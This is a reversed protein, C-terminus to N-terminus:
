GCGEQGPLASGLGSSITCTTQRAASAPWRHSSLFPRGVLHIEGGKSGREGADMLKRGFDSAVLSSERAASVATCGSIACITCQGTRCTGSTHGSGTRIVTTLLLIQIAIVAGRIPIM